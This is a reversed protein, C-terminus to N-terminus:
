STKRSDKNERDYNYIYMHEIEEWFEPEDIIENCSEESNRYKWHAKSSFERGQSILKKNSDYFSNDCLEDIFDLDKKAKIIYEDVIWDFFKLRIKNIGIKKKYILNFKINYRELSRIYATNITKDGCFITMGSINHIHKTIIEPDLARDIMLNCKYKLWDEVFKNSPAYDCRLNIIRKPAYHTDPSFDPVVELVKNHFYPGIHLTKYDSLDNDISLHHMVKQAVDEPKILDIIQHPDYTSFSPKLDTDPTLCDVNESFIPKNNEPLLSGFLCVTPVNYYSAIHSSYLNNCLHVSSKSIIYCIQKYTCNDMCCLNAYDAAKSRGSTIDIVKLDPYFKKIKDVVNIWHSYKDSGDSIDFDTTIYRDCAIPFFHEDLVPKGPKVGLAKSYEEIIHSM